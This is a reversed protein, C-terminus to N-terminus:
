PVDELTYAIVEDLQMAQGEARAAAFVEDGLEAQVAGVLQEYLRRGNPAMVATLTSKRAAALGEAAGWLRAARLAHQSHRRTAAVVTGLGELAWEIGHLNEHAQSITLVEGFWARAQEYEGAILASRALCDLMLSSNMSGPGAHEQVIALSEELLSRARAYDGEDGVHFGLNNLVLALSRKLGLQRFLEVSQEYYSKAEAHNGMSQHRNGLASLASAVEVQDGLERRIALAEEAPALVLDRDGSSQAEWSLQLLSRAIRARDGMMERIARSETHLAVSRARDGGRYALLALADLTEATGWADGAQRSIALSQQLTAEAAALDNAADQLRALLRLTDAHVAPLTGGALLALSEELLQRAQKVDRGGLTAEALGLLARATALADGAERALALSEAYWDRAETVAYPDWYLLGAGLLVPARLRPPLSPGAELVFHLWRRGEASRGSVLWWQPLAATLGACTELEHEGSWELAALLNAHEERLRRHWDLQWPGRWEAAARQALHHFYHAHRQRVDDVREGGHLQELAYERITELMTFRPEGDGEASTILSKDLLSQLADLMEVPLEDDVACVATAAEISWGGVFVALRAFLRQEHAPLLEHSWDITSRLTQHRAALDRAGGTLLRLRSQLRALLAEPPLLKSRAAALEIALPLGDLRACIEAVAPANANTVQFDPRVAQAAQIFLKIAEYQQLRDLPPLRRPNPLELPPVPYEREGQLHLPARSTVLVRLHAAERLLAAVVGAAPLVHEFNDLLLLLQKDHLYAQVTELVSQGGAERLGLTTAIASIVLNPDRIPALNVFWVGDQFSELLEAAVQLALRTKGTGGVGTLTLLRVESQM